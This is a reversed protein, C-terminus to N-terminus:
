NSSLDVGIVKNGGTSAGEKLLRRAEAILETRARRATVIGVSITVRDAAIAEPNALGLASVSTRLAQGLARAAAPQLQPAVLVFVGDPYCTAIVAIPAGISVVASSVQALVTDRAPRGRSATLADLRDVGLALVSVPREGLQQSGAALYAEAATGVFLSTTEDVWRSADRDGWTSRMLATLESERSRRRDLEAKIKLASRVRALLEVRNFPKTIYDTAGAIFASSLSDMDNAATVMIVPVDAYRNDGRIRACAEIGDIEPMVLDLVILDTAAAGSAPRAGNGVGLKAYADLASEATAVHDYGAAMLAAETLDRWDESDDVILIRMTM